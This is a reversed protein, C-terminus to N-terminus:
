ASAMNGCIDRCAQSLVQAIFVKGSSFQFDQPQNAVTMAILLNRILQGDRFCCHIKVDLIQDVLQLGVISRM